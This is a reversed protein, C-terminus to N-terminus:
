GPSLQIAIFTGLELFVTMFTGSYHASLQVAPETQVTNQQM